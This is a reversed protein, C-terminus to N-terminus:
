RRKNTRAVAAALVAKDGKAKAPVGTVLGQGNLRREQYAADTEVEATPAKELAELAAEASLETEYAFHEALASRGKAAAASMIAKIRATAAKAADARATDLDAPAGVPPNTEPMSSEEHRRPPATAAAAARTSADPRRWNKKAALAVLRPPAHAYVRYDFAAVADAADNSTEDAFGEAVAEEPALWREAKMIARCEAQDKGTKAAYVRAYSTALTELMEITKAHDASDGVTVMSPDHVMMVSGASMTVTDGAMAILSAASAAVGDVVVNTTGARRSLMAHIAAGEFASGGGSNLFVTLTSADDVEALALLVDGVTFHDDFWYDGVDGTLTLAGDKLICAM